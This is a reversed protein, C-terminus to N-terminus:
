SSIINIQMRNTIVILFNEPPLKKECKLYLLIKINNVCFLYRTELVRFYRYLNILPERTNYNVWM